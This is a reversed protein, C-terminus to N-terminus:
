IAAVDVDDDDEAFTVYDDGGEGAEDRDEKPIEKYRRLLRVEADSYKFVIDVKDGQFERLSVLVVNGTSIWDRKRMSGRIIGLREEGNASKVTARGNGLMKIVWAYESVGPEAYPIERNKSAMANIKNSKQVGRTM